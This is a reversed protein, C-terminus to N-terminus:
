SLLSLSAFPPKYKRFIALVLDEVRCAKRCYSMAFEQLLLDTDRMFPCAESQKSWHLIASTVSQSKCPQTMLQCNTVHMKFPPPHVSNTM